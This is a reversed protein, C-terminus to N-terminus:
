KLDAEYQIMQGPVLRDSTITLQPNMGGSPITFTREKGPLLGKLSERARTGNVTAYADHYIPAIGANSITVRSQTPSAEFRTVRFRYGLAQGSERIREASQYRPQADGIIFSLGFKRAHDEFRVGHPGMPALAQEQDKKEFFSFEGGTPARQSRDMGFVKWNPANWKAHQAHNFSDDFVGFPLDRLERNGAFPTHKGNAADVSIMWPTQQFVQALHLAFQAQYDKTPFTKGLVMPGDYIHYEAWLGFGTQVYALRPDRDFKEAFAKYFALIARQLEPHSWDPFFTRKGESKGETERYDPLAKIYAPVGTPQGVYNDHWRLIAQHGRGAIADLQTEVAKWDYEDKGAIVEAYSMYRYELQIPATRCAPNTSWLVIGTMPQVQTIASTLPVQRFEEPNVQSPVVGCLIVWPLAHLM